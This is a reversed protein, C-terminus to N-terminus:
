RDAGLVDVLRDPRASRRTLSDLFAAMRRGQARRDRTETVFSRGAATLATAREPALELARRMAATLGAADDTDALILYPRYDDPIGPLRTTVVPTGAALYEIIKSPFSYPVFDQDVPRPNVLVAARALRPALHARELLEPEAIRPDRVAQERLWPELDGRGYLRLALEQGPLARFAEVLRDVGYARSLRGAYVIERRGDAAPPAAVAAPPTFIGEMILHPRGPAFDEALPRTLAIVGACRRLAACVLAANVRRVLRVVTPDGPQALGPPDTLVPVVAIRHRRALLLGCWLFPAHVGHVLLVDPRRRRLVRRGHWLASALRTVFKVVPLNVFGLLQGEVGDQQFGAASFRIRRNGPYTSVPPVSLLWVPCGAERLGHTLGWAFTHTQTADLADTALARALADDPVTFGLLAIRSNQETSM